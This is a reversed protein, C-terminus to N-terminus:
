SDRHRRPWSGEEWRGGDITLITRRRGLPREEYRGDNLAELLGVVQATSVYDFTYNDLMIRAGSDDPLLELRADLGSNLIVEISVLPPDLRASESVSKVARSARLERLLDETTWAM